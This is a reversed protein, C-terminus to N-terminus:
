NQHGGQSFVGVPKRVLCGLEPRLNPGGGTPLVRDGSPNWLIRAFQDISPAILVEDHFFCSSITVFQDISPVTHGLFLVVIWIRKFAKKKKQRSHFLALNQYTVKRLITQWAGYM